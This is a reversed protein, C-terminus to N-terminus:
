ETLLAQAGLEDRWFAATSSGSFRRELLGGAENPVLVVLQEVPLEGRDVYKGCVLAAGIFSRSLNSSEMLTVRLELGADGPQLEVRQIAVVRRLEVFLADEARSLDGGILAASSPIKARLEVVIDGLGGTASPAVPKVPPQAVPEVPATAVPEPLQPLDQQHVAPGLPQDSTWAATDKVLLVGVATLLTAGLVAAGMWIHRTQFGPQPGEQSRELVPAPPPATEDFTVPVTKFSPAPRPRASQRQVAQPRAPGRKPGPFEIVKGSRGGAPPLPQLEAPHVSEAPVQIPPPPPLAEVQQPDLHEVTDEDPALIRPPPAATPPDVRLAVQLTEAAPVDAPAPTDAAPTHSAPTDPETLDDGTDESPSPLAASHPAPPPGPPPSPDSSPQWDEDEWADWLGRAAPLHEALGPLERAPTWPGGDVRLSADPAIRGTSLMRQVSGLDGLPEPGQEGRLEYRAM